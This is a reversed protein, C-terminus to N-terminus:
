PMLAILSLALLALFLVIGLILMLRTVRQDSGFVIPIPGLFVLGGWRRGVPAADVSPPSEPSVRETILPPGKVQFPLFLFTLFFGAVILLIAAFSLGGTATVVPIVLVLSLTAEGRLFAAALLGIGIALLSPGVLSRPDM